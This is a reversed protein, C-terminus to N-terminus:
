CPPSATLRGGYRVTRGAATIWTSYNPTDAHLLSMNANITGGTTILSGTGWAVSLPATPQTGQIGNGMWACATSLAQTGSYAVEGFMQYYGTTAFTIAPSAGTGGYMTSSWLTGPYYGVWSTDYALWWNGSIYEIGFRKATGVVSTLSGGLALASGANPVFGCGNYCQKVGNKWWYGFLCPSATAACVVPDVTWGIEVTAKTSSTNDLMVAIEGLSHSAGNLTPSAITGSAYVGTNTSTTTQDGSAYFYTPGTLKASKASAKGPMGKPAKVGASPSATKFPQSQALDGWPLRAPPAVAAPAAPVAQVPQSAVALGAVVMVAAGLIAKFKKM